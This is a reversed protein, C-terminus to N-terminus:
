LVAVAVAQRVLQGAIVVRAVGGGGPEDLVLVVVTVARTVAGGGDASDAGGAGVGEGEVRRRVGVRVAVAHGVGDVAIRRADRWQHLVLVVVSVAEIVRDLRVGAEIDTAGVGASVGQVGVGVEVPDAVPGVGDGRYALRPWIAVGEALGGLSRDVSEPVRPHLADLRLAGGLARGVLHLGVQRGADPQARDPPHDVARRCLHEASGREGHPRVLGVPRGDLGDEPDLDELVGVAVAEGVLKGVVVVGRLAVQDLVLVVVVVPDRVEVLARRSGVRGIGVAVAVADAVPGNGEGRRAEGARVRVGESYLM